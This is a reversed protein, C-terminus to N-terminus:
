FQTTQRKARLAKPVVQGRASVFEGRLAWVAFLRGVLPLSATAPDVVFHSVPVTPDVGVLLYLAALFLTFAGIVRVFPLFLAHAMDGSHLMNKMSFTM